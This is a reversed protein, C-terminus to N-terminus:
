ETVTRVPSVRAQDALYSQYLEIPIDFSIKPDTKKVKKLIYRLEGPGNTYAESTQIFYIMIVNEDKAHALQTRGGSKGEVLELTDYLPLTHQEYTYCNQANSNVHSFEFKGDYAEAMQPQGPHRHEQLVQEMTYGGTLVKLPSAFSLVEATQRGISFVFEHFDLFGDGDSDPNRDDADNKMLQSWPVTPGSPTNSRIFREECYNLLDHDEDRSDNCATDLVEGYLIRRYYILDNYVPSFSNRNQPDFRKGIMRESYTPDNGFRENFKIEDKDCLGDADSDADITGDECPAANLNTVVFRKIAWAENTNFKILGDIPVKGNEFMNSFKGGGLQAMRQLRAIAQSQNGVGYYVTSLTTDTGTLARVDNDIANEDAIETGDIDYDSPEGDTILVVVYTPQLGQQAAQTRDNAIAQRAMAMAAKYPTMGTDEDTKLRQLAGDVKPGYPVFVPVQDNGSNIYASARDAYFAIMGWMLQDNTKHRGIYDSLLSVRFTDDPDSGPWPQGGAVEQPDNSDSKDMLFLIKTYNKKTEPQAACIEGMTKSTSSQDIQKVSLRVNDCANMVFAISGVFALCIFVMLRM